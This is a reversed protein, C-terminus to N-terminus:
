NMLMVNHKFKIRVNQAVLSSSNFENCIEKWATEKERLVDTNSKEIIRKYKEIIQLFLNQESSSYQLLIHGSSTFKSRSIPLSNKKM